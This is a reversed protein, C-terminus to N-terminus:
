QIVKIIDDGRFNLYKGNYFVKGTIIIPVKEGSLLIEQTKETEFKVMLDPIGDSDYDGIKTPKTLAPVSDNLLISAIDIQNVDFGNPLEIYATVVIGKSKLNLTNPDFDVITETQM